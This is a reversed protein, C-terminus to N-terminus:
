HPFQESAASARDLISWCNQLNALVLILGFRTSLSM